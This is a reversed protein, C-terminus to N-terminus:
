SLIKIKFSLVGYKAIKEKSYYIEMDSPDAIENEQYGLDKKHHHKYLEVFSSYAYKAIVECKLIEKTEENTFILLDKVKILSKKEDNLRMEITKLGSKIAEFPEPRLNLNYNM